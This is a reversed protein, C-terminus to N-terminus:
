EEAARGRGPPLGDQATAADDRVYGGVHGHSALWAYKGAVWERALEHIRMELGLARALGRLTHDNETPGLGGTTFVLYARRQVTARIAGSIAELDDRCISVRGVQAGLGNLQQCLWHSNTDLVDGQLLESGVAVLEVKAHM